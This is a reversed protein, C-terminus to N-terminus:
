VLAKIIDAVSEYGRMPIAGNDVALALTQEDSLAGYEPDVFFFVLKGSQDCFELADLARKSDSYLETFVVANSVGVILRNSQAVSAAESKTDPFYETIIGGGSAIDIALAMEESDAISDFGSDVVAFSAKNVSRAALHAAAGIGGALSGVIQVGAQAFLRTLKTTVEIGENSAQDAGLIAVTRSGPDLMRGRSLLLLPPDNLEFLRHPFAEDFRTTVGIERDALSRCIEDAQDLKGSATAVKGAAIASVRDLAAITGRDASLIADLSGFTRLLLDFLRPTVEGFRLLAIMKTTSSYQSAPAM